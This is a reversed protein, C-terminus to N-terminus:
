CYSRISCWVPIVDGYSNSPDGYLPEPVSLVSSHSLFWMCYPYIDGLHRIGYLLLFFFTYERQGLILGQDYEM